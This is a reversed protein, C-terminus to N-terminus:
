KVVTNRELHADDNQGDHPKMANGGRKEEDHEDIRHHLLRRCGTLPDIM